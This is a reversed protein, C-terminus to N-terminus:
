LSRAAQKKSKPPKKRLAARRAAELGLKAWPVVAQPDDVAEDPLRWYRMSTSHGAKMEYSFAKSGAAKFRAETEDDVKIYIEGFAELAFFLDDAYIGKGGFMSRCRIPGFASFLDSISAADM